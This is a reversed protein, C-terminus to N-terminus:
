RLGSPWWISGAADTAGKKKERERLAYRWEGHM